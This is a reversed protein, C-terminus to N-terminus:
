CTAVIYFFRNSITQYLDRYMSVLVQPWFFRYRLSVQASFMFSFAKNTNWFVAPYRVSYVALALAYNIFEPSCPHWSDDGLDHIYGIKSFTSSAWFIDHKTYYSWIWVWTIWIFLYTVMLTNGFKQQRITIHHKLRQLVQM